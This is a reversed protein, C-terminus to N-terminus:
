TPICLEHCVHYLFFYVHLTCSICVHYAVKANLMACGYATRQVIAAEDPVAVKVCEAPWVIFRHNYTQQLCGVAPVSYSLRVM